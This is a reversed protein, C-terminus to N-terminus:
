RGERRELEEHMDLQAAAMEHMLDITSSMGGFRAIPDLSDKAIVHRKAMELQFVLTYLVILISKGHSACDINQQLALFDSEQCKLLIELMGLMMMRSRTQKEDLFESM